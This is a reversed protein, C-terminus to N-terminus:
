KNLKVHYVVPDVLTNTDLVEWTEWHHVTVQINESAGHLMQVIEMPSYEAIHHPNEPLDPRVRGNPTTIWVNDTAANLIHILAMHPSRLHEFMEVCVVTQFKSGEWRHSVDWTEFQIWPYLCQAFQANRSSKDTGVIGSATRDLIATGLGNGCGAELVTQGRVLKALNSYMQRQQPFMGYSYQEFTSFLDEVRDQSLEDRQFGRIGANVRGLNLEKWRELAQPNAYLDARWERQGGIGVFADWISGCDLFTSRPMRQQLNCIIVAASVGASVLYTGEQNKGVIQQCLNEIGDIELHFNPTSIEFFDRYKFFDLGRLASNGVIYIPRRQLVQILPFLGARAALDDTIQDREYAEIRIQHQGLYYDIEGDCLGPLQPVCKPVGCLYNPTKSAHVLTGLLKEGHEASLIQGLGTRGGERLGLM